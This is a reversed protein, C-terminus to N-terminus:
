TPDEPTRWFALATVLWPTDRPDRPPESLSDAVEEATIVVLSDADKHDRQLIDHAIQSRGRAWADVALRTKVIVQLVEHRAEGRSAVLTSGHVEAEASGVTRPASALPM